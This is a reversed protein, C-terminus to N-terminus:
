QGDPTLTLNQTYNHAFGDYQAPQVEMSKLLYGSATVRVTMGISTLLADFRYQGDPGSFAVVGANAGDLIELRVNPIRALTKSNQVTGSLVHTGQGLIINGGQGQGSLSVVIGTTEYGGLSVRLHTYGGNTVPLKYNGTANSFAYAGADPGDIVEVRAGALVYRNMTAFDGTWEDSLVHSSLSEVASPTLPGACGALALACGFAALHTRAM